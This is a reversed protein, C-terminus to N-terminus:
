PHVWSQGTIWCFCGILLSRICISTVMGNDPFKGSLVYIWNMSAMERGLLIQIGVFAILAVLGISVKRSMSVGLFGISMVSFSQALTLVYLPFFSICMIMATCKCILAAFLSFIIYLRLQRIIGWYLLSRPYTFLIECGETDVVSQMIMISAYGGLFPVLVELLSLTITNNAGLRNQIYYSYILFVISVFPLIGINIGPETLDLVLERCYRKM